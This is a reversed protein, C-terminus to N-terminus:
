GRAPVPLCCCTVQVAALYPPLIPPDCLHVVSRDADGTMSHHRIRHCPWRKTMLQTLCPHGCGLLDHHVVHFLTHAMPGLHDRKVGVSDIAWTLCSLGTRRFSHQVGYHQCAIVCSLPM